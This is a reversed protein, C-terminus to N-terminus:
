KSTRNMPLKINSHLWNAFIFTYLSTVMIYTHLIIYNKVGFILLHHKFTMTITINFKLQNVKMRRQHNFWTEKQEVQRIELKIKMQKIVAAKETFRGTRM